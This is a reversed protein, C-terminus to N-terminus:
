CLVSVKERTQKRNLRWADVISVLANLKPHPMDHGGLLLGTLGQKAADLSGPYVTLLKLTHRMTFVCVCWWESGILEEYKENLFSFRGTM